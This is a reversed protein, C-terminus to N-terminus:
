GPLPWPSPSRKWFHGGRRRNPVSFPSYISCRKSVVAAAEQTQLVPAALLLLLLLLLLVLVV